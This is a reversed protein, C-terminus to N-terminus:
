SPGGGAASLIAVPDVSTRRRESIREIAAVADAFEVRSLDRQELRCVHSAAAKGLESALDAQSVGMQTRYQKLKAGDIM